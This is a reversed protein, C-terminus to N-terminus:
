PQRGRRHCGPRGQADRAPRGRRPVGPRPEGRRGARGASVDRRVGHDCVTATAVGDHDDLRVEGRGTVAADRGAAHTVAADCETASGPRGPGVLLNIPRGTLTASLPSADSVVPGYGSRFIVVTSSSDTMDSSAKM